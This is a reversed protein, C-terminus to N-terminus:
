QLVMRIMSYNSFSHVTSYQIYKPYDIIKFDSFKASFKEDQTLNQNASPMHHQFVAKIKCASFKKLQQVKGWLHCLCRLCPLVWYLLSTLCCAVNDGHGISLTVCWFLCRLRWLYRTALAWGNNWAIPFSSLALSSALLIDPMFHELVSPHKDLIM